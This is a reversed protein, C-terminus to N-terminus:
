KVLQRRIKGLSEEALSIALAHPDMSEVSRKKFSNPFFKKEFEQTSRYVQDQKKGRLEKEKGRM